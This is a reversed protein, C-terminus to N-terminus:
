LPTLQAPRFSTPTGGTVAVVIVANIGTGQVARIRGTRGTAKVQVARGIRWTQRFTLPTATM